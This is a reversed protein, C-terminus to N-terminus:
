ACHASHDRGYFFGTFPMKGHPTEAGLAKQAARIAAIQAARDAELREREADLRLQLTEFCDPLKKGVLRKLATVVEKLHKAPVDGGDFGSTHIWDANSLRWGAAAQLLCEMWVADEQPPLSRLASHLELLQAVFPNKVKKELDIRGYFLDCIRAFDGYAVSEAPLINQLFMQLLAWPPEEHLRPFASIFKLREAGHDEDLLYRLRTEELKGDLLLFHIM